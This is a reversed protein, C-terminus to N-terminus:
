VPIKLKDKIKISIDDIVFIIEKEKSTNISPEYQFGLFVIKSSNGFSDDLQPFKGSVPIEIQKWGEFNLSCAPIKKREGNKEQLILSLEGGSSNSYINLTFTELKEIIQPPNKWQIKFPYQRISSPLRVFLAKESSIDPSTFLTSLSLEPAEQFTNPLPIRAPLTDTEFDFLKRTETYPASFISFSFWFLSTLSLLHHFTIM